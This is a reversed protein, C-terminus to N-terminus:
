SGSKVTDLFLNMVSDIQASVAVAVERRNTTRRTQGINPGETVVELPANEYDFLEPRICAVLASPDHMMVGKLTFRDYYSKAYYPFMQNLFGGLKPAAKALDDFHHEFGHIQTTVDLGIMTMPWDAAFVIDAAHPDNWINAESVGSVNGAEHLSGGMIVVNKVKAAISPDLALANAINTLPGIPCLTIEGPHTNIMEVLFQDAPLPDKRGKPTSAPVDGFGETGHVFDAIPNPTISLPVAAGEAVPIDQDTMEALRLANRTARDITVNGFITTMAMLEIKPHLAAFIIAMADDIGPDTDIILKTKM